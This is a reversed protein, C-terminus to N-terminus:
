KGQLGKLVIQYIIMVALVAGALACMYVDITM